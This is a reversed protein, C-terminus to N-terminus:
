GGGGGGVNTCQGGLDEVETCAGTLHGKVGTLSDLVGTRVSSIAEQIGLARLSNEFDLCSTQVTLLPECLAAGNSAAGM